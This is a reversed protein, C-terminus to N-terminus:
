VQRDREVPVLHGRQGGAHLLLDQRRRAAVVDEHDPVVRRVGAMEAQLRHLRQGVQDLRDGDM